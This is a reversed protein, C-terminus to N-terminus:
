ATRFAALLKTFDAPPPADWRLAEQTLPHIIGLMAAHLMPRTANSSDPLPQGNVPRDYVTEGCLPTGSEGLHIRVQHTRGTELRCEVLAFDAFKEILKVFSVARKGEADPNSSSGRRGDGRDSVFTSLRRGETPIGRVLALYKREATHKRFQELLKQEAGKTRAFVILGSTDRDIRHVPLIRSNPAGLLAPLFDALTKPLYTQGRPGFEEAEGSTRMTTLGAPKNVVVVADDSYVIADALKAFWPSESLPRSPALPKPAPKEVVKPKVLPKEEVKPKADKPVEITGERIWVRNGKRLKLAPDATAHGAVRVHGNEILRKSQSWSLKFRERLLSAITHRAEQYDVLFEIPPM